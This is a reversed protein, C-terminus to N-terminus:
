ARRGQRAMMPPITMTFCTGQHHSVALSGQLQRVLDHVLSLGLSPAADRTAEGEERGAMGGGDDCVALVFAGAGRDSLTVRVTGDGDEPFAHKLANSVLENVILGCSIARDLDVEMGDVETVLRIRPQAHVRALQACLGQIHARLDVRDLRGARYLNEHVMAMARVRNRSDAFMAAVAPDGAATAQLNLLSSVLQLNNKVRHHVEKLLVETEKLAANEMSIAAQAALMRILGLHRGAFVRPSLRNELYLLTAAQGSRPLPLCAMSRCHGAALYPDASFQRPRSAEDLLVMRSTRAAYQIATLPLDDAQPLTKPLMVEIEADRTVAEARIQLRGELPMLLVGRDAGALELVAVMLTRVLTDLGAEGSIAQSTELLAIVDPEGPRPEVPQVLAAQAGPWSRSLSSGGFVRDIQRVKGEAGWALYAARAAQACARALTPLGRAAHFRAALEQAVAEDHPLGHRHADQAAREYGHLADLDRGELRAVEAALIAARAAFSAPGHRAWAEFRAACARLADCHHGRAAQAGDHCAAHALGTVFYHEAFEFHGATSWLLPEARESAALAEAPRGAHFRAQAKRIWYWCAAIDLSRNSMLHREFGGEDFGPEDFSAFDPTLGRLLRVLQLQATIIADILGFRARRVGALKVEAERQVELLNEGAGLLISILSCGSFGAYTLDGAETAAEFAHRHLGLGARIPQTWPMVHYAFCMDVRHRFRGMGPRAALDHGLRGFRFGAPHDGFCPGLVMGLYAYALPSAEGNGYELSLNAMRCLLLCVLNQDSFFAPPLAATLVSLIAQVTEDQLSPLEALAEITTDGLRRRLREYEDQLDQRSPHASWHMGVEGLFALCLAIARDSRDMATCITVQLWTIRAQEALTRAQPLLAELAALAADAGGTLFRCEAHDCAIAFSLEPQRLRGDAGLLAQATELYDLAAGYATTARARRAARWALGAMRDREGVEEILAAAPGLHGAIGFLAAEIEEPSALAAMARAIRLHLRARDAAPVLAGAAEQIRDHAFAYRDGVRRLLGSQVLQSLARELEAESHGLIASPLATGAPGGLHALLGLVRRALCPLRSLRGAMFDAVNDASGKDRIGELNWRWTGASRTFALLGEEILGALFQGVFFPNGRTKAHVQAALPASQEPAMQLMDAVLRATTESPLPLLTIESVAGEPGREWGSAGGQGIRALIRRLPHDPGIENDRYAGLLLLSPIPPGAALRELFDLTATDLWQLDDLFLALPHAAQAFARLFNGLALHFRNALEDPPLEPMPDQAGLVLALDPVLNVVLPASAGLAEGLRRRWAAVEAESRGLVGRVLEQFAQALTAYPIGRQIQDFKGAAFLGGMPLLAERLALMMASKGIGSYGSVLVIEGRGQRSVREWAALLLAMEGHRGHLARAPMLRGPVDRAGPPFPAITGREQLAMQCHRLDALLGAATQYREEPAKALLKLIIALVGEPMGPARRAPPLPPRALHAHAWEVTGTASFPLTGTAMEYLIVGAAYLDARADPAGGMPHACEPAMYPLGADSPPPQSRNATLPAAAHGFGTLRLQGAANLLLTGPRLDRHVIDQAHLHLLAEALAIATHLFAAPESPRGLSRELLEGGPDALLLATRGAHEVLGRPMVAWAPDLESALALEHALLSVGTLDSRDEAPLRLLITAAAAPDSLRLLRTSGGPRADLVHGHDEGYMVPLDPPPQSTM